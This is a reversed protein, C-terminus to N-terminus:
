YIHVLIKWEYIEAINAICTFVRQNILSCYFKDLGVGVYNEVKIKNGNQCNEMHKLVTHDSVRDIEVCFTEGLAHWISVPKVTCRLTNIQLPCFLNLFFLNRGEKDHFKWESNRIFRFGARNVPIVCLFM